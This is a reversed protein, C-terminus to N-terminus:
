STPSEETIVARVKRPWISKVGIRSLEEIPVDVFDVRVEVEHATTRPELGTVDAVLRLQDPVIRDVLAPPGTLVITLTEPEIEVAGQAGIREVAIGEFKREVPAADVDVRVEVPRPAIVRVHPADPVASVPTTFPQRRMDLRIPNTRLIELSDVESAPGEVTLREPNLRAGYFEFGEPPQGIFTPEVLLERRARRDVTLRLRDPDIFEIDVGGPVGRLDSPSLVVDQEGLSADSLDVRLKMSLGSTRRMRSEAGKLRVTVTTPTDVTLIRTEPLLIELPVAFEQLVSQEGTVAVWIVFALAVALVKLPWHSLLRELM